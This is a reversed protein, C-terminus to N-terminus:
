APEDARSGAAWQMPRDGRVNRVFCAGGSAKIRVCLNVADARSASLSAPTAPETARAEAAGAFESM